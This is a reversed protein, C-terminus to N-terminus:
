KPEMRCWNLDLYVNLKQGFCTLNVKDASKLDSLGKKDMFFSRVHLADECEIYALDEWENMGKFKVHSTKVSQVTCEFTFAKDAYKKRALENNESVDKSILKATTKFESDKKMGLWIELPKIPTSIVKDAVSEISKSAANFLKPVYSVAFRAVLLVVTFILWKKLLSKM